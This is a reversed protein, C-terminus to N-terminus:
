WIGKRYPNSLSWDLIGNGANTIKKVAGDVRPNILKLMDEINQRLKAEAVQMGERDGMAELCKVVAAQALVKHAEVPIQPVPSYGQLSVWDGVSIGTVSNLQLTPSSAVVITVEEVKTAFPQSQGVVNLKTGTTWDNPVFTLTVENTLPNVGTVQGAESTIVLQLPRRMYYLRIVGTAQNTGPYILIQNGQVVFGSINVFDYTTGALQELTLRPIPSLGGNSPDVWLVDRLKMGVADDPIELVMPGSSSPTVTVDKYTVFYEERVSMLLPVILTEMEDNAIAVFDAPTFLQQNTPLTGRRKIAAILETTTYSPM